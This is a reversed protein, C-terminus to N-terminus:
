ASPFATSIQKLNVGVAFCLLDCPSFTDVMRPYTTLTFLVVALVVTQLRSTLLLLVKLWHDDHGLRTGNM